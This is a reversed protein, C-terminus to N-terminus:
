RREFLEMVDERDFLRTGENMTAATGCAVGFRIMEELPFKKQMAYIIGAVMSDGAGVTSKREVKPAAAFAHEKETVLWAGNAGMSVALMGAYGQGIIERAAKVVEDNEIREKGLLRSLEGINPKILDARKGKLAALAPGSTDIVSRAGAARAREVIGAYIDERMQPPLSGSAVVFEPKLADIQSLMEGVTKEDVPLGPFTFRFQKNTNTEVAMWNERTEVGMPFSRFEISEKELLACLMKGNYGGSPILAISSAGLKKLAKSVNLGGGGPERVVESCRMKVDPKLEDITTSKDICPNLTITLIM